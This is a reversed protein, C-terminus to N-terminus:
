VSFSAQATALATLLPQVVDPGLTLVKSLFNASYVPALYQTATLLQEIANLNDIEALIELYFIANTYDKKQIYEKIKYNLNQEGQILSYHNGM